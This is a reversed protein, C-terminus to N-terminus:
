IVRKMGVTELRYGYKRLKKLWGPRGGFTVADLGAKRAVWVVCELFDELWADMGTGGLLWVNLTNDDKRAALQTVFAGVLAGDEFITYVQARGAEIRAWLEVLNDSERPSKQLAPTLYDMVQVWLAFDDTLQGRTISHIDIM